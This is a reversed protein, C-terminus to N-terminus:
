SIFFGCLNCSYFHQLVPVVLVLCRFQGRLRQLILVGKIFGQEDGQRDHFHDDNFIEVLYPIWSSILVIALKSVVSTSGDYKHHNSLKTHFFTYTPLNETLMCVRYVDLLNLGGYVPRLITM